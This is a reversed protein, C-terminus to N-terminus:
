AMVARRLTSIVRRPKGSADAIRQDQAEIETRAPEDGDLGGLIETPVKRNSTRSGDAYHVDFFAWKGDDRRKAM